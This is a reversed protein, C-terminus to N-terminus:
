KNPHEIEQRVGDIYSAVFADRFGVKVLEKRFKQAERLTEFLGLSYKFLRKDSSIGAITESLLTYRNKTFAGIQVSYIKKGKISKKIAETSDEISGGDNDAFQDNLDDISDLVRTAELQKIKNIDLKSASGGNSYFYYAFALAIGAIVSLVVNQITTNKKSAKVDTENDALTKKVKTLEATALELEKNADDVTKHLSTLEDDNLFPM